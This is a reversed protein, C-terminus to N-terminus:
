RGNEANEANLDKTALSASGSSVASIMGLIVRDRNPRERGGQELIKLKGKSM